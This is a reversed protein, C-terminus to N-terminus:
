SQGLGFVGLIEGRVRAAGAAAGLAGRELDEAVEALRLVVVLLEARCFVLDFCHEVLVQETFVLFGGVVGLNPLELNCRVYTDTKTRLRGWELDGVVNEVVVVVVEKQWLSLLVEGPSGLGVARLSGGECLCLGRSEGPDAERWSALPVVKAPYGFFTSSTEGAASAGWVNVLRTHEREERGM